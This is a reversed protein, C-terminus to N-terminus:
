VPLFLGLGFHSAYGLAIPGSVAEGFTLRLGYAMRVPPKGADADREIRFGRWRKAGVFPTQTCVAAGVSAALQFGNGETDIEVRVARPFGRDVLEEQIQEELTNRGRPKPHRVPVFPTMSTWTFARGLAPIRHAFDDRLGLALFDVHLTPSSSEVWLRNMRMLAARASQDFSMRAHILFHDVADGTELAMPLLFAHQHNTLPNGMDDRGSFCPSSGRGHGDDSTKVLADHLASSWPLTHTLLPLLGRQPTLSLLATTPPPMPM